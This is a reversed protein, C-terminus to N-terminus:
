DNVVWLDTNTFKCTTGSGANTGSVITYALDGETVKGLLGQFKKALKDNVFFAYDRGNVTLAIHAKGTPLDLKGYYGEGMNHFYGESYANSQSYGDMMLFVAYHNNGDGDIHFAFGCGSAFWNATGSAINYDIDTEIVFNEPSYGTPYWNYTNLQAFSDEYDPLPYYTGNTSPIYGDKAYQQVKTFMAAYAKTAELNPTITPTPTRTPTPTKTATPRAVETQTMAAQSTAKKDLEAQQATATQHAQELAADATQKSIINQTAQVDVTATAIPKAFSCSSGLLALLLMISAVMMTQRPYGSKKSYMIDRWNIFMVPRMVRVKMIPHHANELM